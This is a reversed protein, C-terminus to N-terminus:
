RDEKAHANCPTSIFSGEFSDPGSDPFREATADGTYIPETTTCGETSCTLYIVHGSM